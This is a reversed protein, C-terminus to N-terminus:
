KKESNKKHSSTVSLFCIYVLFLSWFRPTAERGAGLEGTHVPVYEGILALTLREIPM